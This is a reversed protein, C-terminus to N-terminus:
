NDLNKLSLIQNLIITNKGGGVDAITPKGHLGEVAIRYPKKSFDPCDTLEVSVEAFYSKLGQQLVPVLEELKPGNLDFFQIKSADM